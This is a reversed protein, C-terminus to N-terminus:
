EPTKRDIRVFSIRGKAQHGTVSIQYRGDEPMTLIFDADTQETGRYVPEKGAQGVKVDVNGATQSIIVRIQEGQFCEMEASETGNLATYQMRFGTEDSVSTGSFTMLGSCGTLMIGALVLIMLVAGTKMTVTQNM